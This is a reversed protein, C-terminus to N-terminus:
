AWKMCHLINGRVFMKLAGQTYINQAYFIPERAFCAYKKPAHVKFARVFIHKSYCLTGDHRVCAKQLFSLIPSTNNSKSNSFTVTKVCYNNSQSLSLLLPFDWFPVPQIIGNFYRKCSIILHDNLHKYLVMLHRWFLALRTLRWCCQFKDWGTKNEEFCRAAFFTM